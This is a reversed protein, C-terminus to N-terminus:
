SLIRPPNKTTGIATHHLPLMAPKSGTPSPELGEVAALNLLELEKLQRITYSAVRTARSWLVRPEFGLGGALKSLRLNRNSGPGVVTPYSLRYLVAGQVPPHIASVLRSYVPGTFLM